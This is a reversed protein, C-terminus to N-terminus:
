AEEDCYQSVDYNAITAALSRPSVGHSNQRNTDAGAALLLNILEGRAKSSFVARWLPTNGHSDTRDVDAGNDILVHAAAESWEQAAFHLPTWGQEDQANPDYGMRILRLTEDAHRDSPLNVAVYHLKTRGFEDCESM